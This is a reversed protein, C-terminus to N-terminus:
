GGRMIKSTSPKKKKIIKSHEFATGDTTDLKALFERNLKEAEAFTIVLGDKSYWFEGPKVEAFRGV